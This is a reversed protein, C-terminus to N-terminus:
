IFFMTCIYCFKGIDAFRVLLAGEIVAILQREDSLQPVYRFTIDTVLDKNM